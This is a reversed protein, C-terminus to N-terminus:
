FLVSSPMKGYWDGAWAATFCDLCPFLNKDDHNFHYFYQFQRAIFIFWWRLSLSLSLFLSLSLYVFVSLCLCIFLSVYRCVLFLSLCVSLFLSIPYISVSVLLYLARLCFNWWFSLGYSWCNMTFFISSSFGENLCYWHLYFSFLIRNVHVVFLSGNPFLGFVKTHMYDDIYSEHRSLNWLICLSWTPWNDVWWTCYWYGLGSM